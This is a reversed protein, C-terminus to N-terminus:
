RATYNRILANVGALNQQWEVSEHTKLEVTIAPIGISALWGEADGTVEYSDFTKIAKYGSAKSYIDMIELTEPLIGNECESAYVANAQSHWFIVADPTNELVFNQLSKSEPESFASTGASVEKSRWTSKPKWKCDFNRNLDVENTNFRANALVKEDKSIDTTAFRGIKNTAKYVGDPNLSPIITIKLDNPVAENNQEFYDIFQYALLVSNWEYGGHVGGVFTLHKSGNGFSYSEIDRGEVSKGIINHVSFDPTPIPAPTDQRFLVLLVLAIIVIGFIIAFKFKPSASPM